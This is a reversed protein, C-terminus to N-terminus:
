SQGDQEGFLHGKVMVLQFDKIFIIDLSSLVIGVGLFCIIDIANIIADPDEGKIKIAPAYFPKCPIINATM